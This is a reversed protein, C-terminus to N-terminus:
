VHARGIQGGPGAHHNPPTGRPSPEAPRRGLEKAEKEGEWVEPLVKEARPEGDSRGGGVVPESGSPGGPSRPTLKPSFLVLETKFPGQFSASSPAPAGPPQAGAGPGAPSPLQVAGHGPEPRQGEPSESRATQYVNRWFEVGRQSAGWRQRWGWLGALCEGEASM